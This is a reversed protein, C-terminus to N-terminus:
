KRNKKETFVSDPIGKNVRYNSFTVLATGKGSKPPVVKIEDPDFVPRSMAGSMEVKIQSPLWYRGDVRVYTWRSSFKAAGFEAETGVILGRRKDVLLKMTREAQSTKPVLKLVHVPEGGAKGSGGYAVDFNARIAAVPNGPFADRPLVAFGERAVLKLKNPRKYYITAKTKAAHVQPSNIAVEVDASYDRIAAYNREVQALVQASTPKAQAVSSSLLIAAVIGARALASM